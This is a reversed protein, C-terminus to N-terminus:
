VRYSNITTGVGEYQGEHRTGFILRGFREQDCEEPVPDDVYTRSHTSAMALVRDAVLFGLRTPSLRDGIAWEKMKPGAIVSRGSFSGEPVRFLPRHPYEQMRGEMRGLKRGEKLYQWATLVDIGRLRQDNFKELPIAQEPTEISKARLRDAFATMAPKLERAWTDSLGHSAEWSRKLYFEWKAGDLAMKKAWPLAEMGYGFAPKEGDPDAMQRRIVLLQSLLALDIDAEPALDRLAKMHDSWSDQLRETSLSDASSM